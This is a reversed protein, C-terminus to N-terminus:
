RAYAASGSMARFPFCCSLVATSLWLAQAVGVIREALDAQGADTFLEDTFWATPAASCCLPWLGKWM